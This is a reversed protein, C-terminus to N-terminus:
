WLAPLFRKSRTMYDGYAAGFYALNEQEEQGATLALLVTAALAL